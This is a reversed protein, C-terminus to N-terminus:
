KQVTLIHAFSNKKIMISTTNLFRKDKNRHPYLANKHRHYKNLSIIIYIYTNAKTKQEM